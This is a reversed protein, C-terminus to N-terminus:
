IADLVALTDDLAAPFPREPVLRYDPLLVRCGSARSLRAGFARYSASSGVSFAGGHLRLLTATDTVGDGDMHGIDGTYLWGGRLAEATAAPDNLYGTMLQPGRARIEGVAAPTVGDVADVIEIATGPLARGVSGLKAAAGPRQYTLM